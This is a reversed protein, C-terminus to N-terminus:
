WGTAIPVKKKFTGNGLGRYYYLTHSMNERGIIDALGDGDLDAGAVLTYGLWGNGAQVKMRFTGNGKGAYQFLNGLDDIGLIDARGDGNLDGAAYLDWTSWGYGVKAKTAFLGNGKGPYVYLDGATDIGLLDPKGDGTLDGAPILRWNKWGNGIQRPLNLPASGNGSYLLLNGTLRNIALVDAKGDGDVDGPSFIDLNKFGSALPFVPTGLAGTPTGPYMWLAGASDVALVDGRGDATMDPSETFQAMPLAANDVPDGQLFVVASAAEPNSDWDQRPGFGSATGEVHANLNYTTSGAAKSISLGPGQHMEIFRTPVWTMGKSGIIINSITANVSDGNHKVDGEVGREADATLQTWQSGIYIGAVFFAVTQDSSFYAMMVPMDTGLQGICWTQYTFYGTEPAVNESLFVAQNSYADGGFSKTDYQIGFSAAHPGDTMMVKGQYGSGSGTLNVVAGVILDAMSLDPSWGPSSCTTTSFLSLDPRTAITASPMPGVPTAQATPQGSLGAVLVTACFVASLIVSRKM